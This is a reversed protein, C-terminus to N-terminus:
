VNQLLDHLGIHHAHGGCKVREQVGHFGRSGIRHNGTLCAGQDANGTHRANAAHRTMSRIAGALGGDSGLRSWSGGGLALVVSKALVRRSSAQQSSLHRVEFNLEIQPLDVHGATSAKLGVLRHRMHFEVPKGSLPHRLRHLWARLLPAAKMEKPFVRGSTGVFTEIGLELAWERLHDAGWDSLIPKLKTKQEGYRHAFNEFAESHTLNLGGRGALLFKRGVSPMGDFLHVSYGLASLVQAAMLGAPGGGVVAISVSLPTLSENSINNM